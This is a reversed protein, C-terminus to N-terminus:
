RAHHYGSQLDLKSVWQAKGLRNILDHIKPMRYEDRITIKNLSRYDIVMRLSGDPKPRFFVPAAFPATSPAIFGKALLERLQKKLEGLQEGSMSYTQKKYEPVAGPITPIHHEIVRDVISEGPLESFM